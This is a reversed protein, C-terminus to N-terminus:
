RKRPRTPSSSSPRKSNTARSTGRRMDYARRGMVVAGTTAILGQLAETERLAALDPYLREVSGHRDNIFGDLSMTMGLLVKAMLEGRGKGGAPLHARAAPQYTLAVVGSSFPTAEVLRPAAQIGDARATGALIGVLMEDDLYPRQWGNPADVM